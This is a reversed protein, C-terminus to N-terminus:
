RSHPILEEDAIWATLKTTPPVWIIKLCVFERKGRKKIAKLCAVQSTTKFDTPIQEKEFFCVFTYTESDSSSPSINRLRASYANLHDDWNIETLFYAYTKWITGSEKEVEIEMKTKKIKSLERLHEHQGRTLEVEKPELEKWETLDQNDDKDVMQILWCIYRNKIEASPSCRIICTRKRTLPYYDDFLWRVFSCLFTGTQNRLEFLYYYPYEKQVKITTFIAVCEYLLKEKSASLTSDQSM